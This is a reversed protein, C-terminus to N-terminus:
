VQIGPGVLLPFVFVLSADGLDTALPLTASGNYDRAGMGAGM